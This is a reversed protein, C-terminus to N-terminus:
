ATSISLSPPCHHAAIRTERPDPMKSQTFTCPVLRLIITSVVDGGAKQIVSAFLPIQAHSSGGPVPEDGANENLLVFGLHAPYVAYTLDASKVHSDLLAGQSNAYDKALQIAAEVTAQAKETFQDLNISM